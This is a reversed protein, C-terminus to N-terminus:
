HDDQAERKEQVLEFYEHVIGGNYGVWFKHHSWYEEPDSWIYKTGDWKIRENQEMYAIFSRMQKSITM